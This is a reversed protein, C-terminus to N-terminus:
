FKKWEIGYVQLDRNRNFCDVVYKNDTLDPWNFDHRLSFWVGGGGGMIPKVM